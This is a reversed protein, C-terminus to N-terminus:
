QGMKEFFFSTLVRVQCPNQRGRSYNGKLALAYVAINPDDLDCVYSYNGKLVLAYVAKRNKILFNVESYNGQM